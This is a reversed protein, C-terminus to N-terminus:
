SGVISHDHHLSQKTMVLCGVDWTVDESVIHWGRCYSTILRDIERCIYPKKDMQPFKRWLIPTEGEGM